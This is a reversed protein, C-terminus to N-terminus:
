IVWVVLQDITDLPDELWETSGDDWMVPPRIQSARTLQLGAEGLDDVQVDIVEYRIGRITIFDGMKAPRTGNPLDYRADYYFMIQTVSLGNESPQLPITFPDIAFRGKLPDAVGFWEPWADEGFAERECRLLFDFDSLPM